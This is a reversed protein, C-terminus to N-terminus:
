TLICIRCHLQHLNKGRPHTSPCLVTQVIFWHQVDALTVLSSCCIAVTSVGPIRDGVVEKVGALEPPQLPANFCKVQFKNLEEDDLAGDQM